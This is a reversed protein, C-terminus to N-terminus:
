RGDIPTARSLTEVQGAAGSSGTFPELSAANGGDVADVKRGFHKFSRAALSDISREGQSRNFFRPDAASAVVENDHAEHILVEGSQLTDILFCISHADRARFEYDDSHVWREEHRSHRGVELVALSIWLSDFRM